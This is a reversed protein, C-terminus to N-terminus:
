HHQSRAGQFRRKSNKQLPWLGAVGRRLIEERLDWLIAPAMPEEQQDELSGHFIGGALPM